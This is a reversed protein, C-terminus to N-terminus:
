SSRKRPKCYYGVGPLTKGQLDQAKAHFGEPQWKQENTDLSACRLAALSALALPVPGFASGRDWLVTKNDQEALRPPRDAQREGRSAACGSLLLAIAILPYTTTFKKM